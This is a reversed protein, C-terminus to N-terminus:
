RRRPALPYSFAEANVMGNAGSNPVRCLPLFYPAGYANAHVPIAGAISQFMARRELRSQIAAARCLYRRGRIADLLECRCCRSTDAAPLTTTVPLTALGSFAPLPVGFARRGNRSSSAPCLGCCIACLVLRMLLLHIGVSPSSYNIQLWTFTCLPTYVVSPVPV